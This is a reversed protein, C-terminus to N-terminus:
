GAISKQEYDNHKFTEYNKGRKKKDVVIRNCLLYYDRM